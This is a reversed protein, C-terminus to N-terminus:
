SPENKKLSCNKTWRLDTNKKQIAPFYQVFPWLHLLAKELNVPACFLQPNWFGTKALEEGRIDCIKTTGKRTISVVLCKHKWAVSSIM